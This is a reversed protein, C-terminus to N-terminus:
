GARRGRRGGSTRRESPRGGRDLCVVAGEPLVLAGRRLVALDLLREIGTELVGVVVLVAAGVVLDVLVGDLVLDAAPRVAGHVEGRVLVAVFVYTKDAGRVAM